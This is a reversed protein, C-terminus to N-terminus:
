PCPEFTEVPRAPRGNVSVLVVGTEPTEATFTMTTELRGLTYSVSGATPLCVLPEFLLMDLTFGTEIEPTAITGMGDFTVGTEPVRAIAVDELTLDISLQDSTYSLDSNVIFSPEEGGQLSLAVNGNFSQANVDFDELGLNFTVSEGETSAGLSVTGDVNVEQAGLVCSDLELSLTADGWSLSACGVNVEQAEIIARVHERLAQLRERIPRDDAGRMRDASQADVLSSAANQASLGDIMGRMMASEQTSIAIEEGPASAEPAETPDSTTDEGCGTLAFPLVCSLMLTKYTFNM